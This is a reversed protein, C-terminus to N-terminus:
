QRARREKKSEMKAKTAERAMRRVEDEIANLATVLTWGPAASLALIDAAISRIFKIADPNDPGM